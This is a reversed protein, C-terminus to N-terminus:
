ERTAVLERLQLVLALLLTFTLEVRGIMDIEFGLLLIQRPCVAVSVAV